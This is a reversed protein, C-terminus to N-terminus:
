TGKFKTDEKNLLKEEVEFIRLELSFHTVTIPDATM